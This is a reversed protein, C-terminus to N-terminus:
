PRPACGRAVELCREPAVSFWFPGHREECTPHAAAEDATLRYDARGDADLDILNALLPSAPNDTEKVLCRGLRAAAGFRLVRPRHGRWDWAVVFLEAFVLHALVAGAVLTALVSAILVPRRRPTM